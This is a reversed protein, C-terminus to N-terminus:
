SARTKDYLAILKPYVAEATYTERFKGTAAAAIRGALEPQSLLEIVHRAFARADKPDALFGDVGPTIIDTPGGASAAVLPTGAEMAEILVMGFPEPDISTHAVVDAARYAFYPDALHGTFLVNDRIGLDRTAAVVEDYYDQEGDSHSGAIVLLASPVAKVVEAMARVCELQGKWRVVRGVVTVVPRDPAIGFRARAEARTPMTARPTLFNPLLNVRPTPLGVRVASEAVCTSIAWFQRPFRLTYETLRAMPVEFIGHLQHMSPVRALRAAFVPEVGNNIHVVDARFRRILRALSVIYGVNLLHSLRNRLWARGRVFRSKQGDRFIEKLMRSDDYTVAQKLKVLTAGASFVGRTQEPDLTTVVMVEHGHARMLADVQAAVVTSGGVTVACDIVVLRM